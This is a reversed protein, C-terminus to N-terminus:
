FGFYNKKGRPHAAPEPTGREPLDEEEENGELQEEAEGQGVEENENVVVVEPEEGQEEGLENILEDIVHEDEHDALQEHSAEVMMRLGNIEERLSGLDEGAALEALRIDREANIRAIIIDAAEPEIVPDMHVEGCESCIHAM